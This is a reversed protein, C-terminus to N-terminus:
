QDARKKAKKRPKERKEQPTLRLLVGGGKAWLIKRKARKKNEPKKKRPMLSDSDVSRGAFNKEATKKGGFVSRGKQRAWRSSGQKTFM